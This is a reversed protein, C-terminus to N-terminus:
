YLEFMMQILFNLIFERLGPGGHSLDGFPLKGYKELYSYGYFYNM